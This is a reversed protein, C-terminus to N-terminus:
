DTASAASWSRFWAGLGLPLGVLPVLWGVLPILWIIGAVASGTLVAGHTSLRPFIRSGLWGVAPVGAVLAVAGVAGVAALFLPVLVALLPFSAAPPALALLLAALGILFAPFLIVVAGRAWTGVPASGAGAIAARTAEPWGWSVSLATMTLFVILLFRMFLLLARIRINAPLPTKDVIVGGVEALDLGDAEQDSRYGLDGGVELAEVVRMRGVSVDVDGTASGGLDLSRMTGNLAGVSGLSRMAWVWALVEGEVSSGDLLEVAFAAVVVDGGVTGTVSVDPAAARLSGEVVGEVTVRPSVAMVSGGVSGEILVEESSFAILDGEIRGRVIVRIAGVYLDDAIVDDERVIVIQSNATEAAVAPTSFAVIAVVVLASTLVIHRHSRTM